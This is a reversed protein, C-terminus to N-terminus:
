HRSGEEVGYEPDAIGPESPTHPAPVYPKRIKTGPHRPAKNGNAGDIIARLSLASLADPKLCESVPITLFPKNPDDPAGIATIKLKGNEQKQAKVIIFTEKSEPHEGLDFIEKRRELTLLCDSESTFVNSRDQDTSNRARKFIEGLPTSSVGITWKTKDANEICTTNMVSEMASAADETVILINVRAETGDITLDSLKKEELSLHNLIRATCTQPKAIPKLSEITQEKVSGDVVTHIYLGRKSIQTTPRYDQALTNSSSSLLAVTLLTTYVKM